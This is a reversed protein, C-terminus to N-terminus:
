VRKSVRTDIQKFSAYNKRRNLADGKPDGLQTVILALRGLPLNDYM